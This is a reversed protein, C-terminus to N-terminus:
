KINTKINKYVLYGARVDIDHQFSVCILHYIDNQFYNGDIFRSPKRSKM